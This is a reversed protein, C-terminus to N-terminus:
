PISWLPPPNYPSERAATRGLLKGRVGRCHCNKNCKCSQSPERFPFLPTNCKCCDLKSGFFHSLKEGKYPSNERFPAVPINDKPRQYYRVTRGRIKCSKIYFFSCFVHTQEGDGVRVMRGNVGEEWWMKFDRNSSARLTPLFVYRRLFNFIHSLDPNWLCVCIWPIVNYVRLTRLVAGLFFKNSSKHIYIILSLLFQTCM